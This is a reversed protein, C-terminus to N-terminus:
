LRLDFKCISLGSWLWRVFHESDGVKRTVHGGFGIADAKEVDGNALLVWLSDDELKVIVNNRFSGVIELLQTKSM